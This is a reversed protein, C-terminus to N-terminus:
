PEHTAQAPKHDHRPPLPSPPCPAHDAIGLWAEVDPASASIPTALVRLVAHYSDIWARLMQTTPRDAVQRRLLAHDIAQEILGIQARLYLVCRQRVADSVAALAMVAPVVAIAAYGGGARALAADTAPWDTGLQALVAKGWIRLDMAAASRWEGIASVYDPDAVRAGELLKKHHASPLTAICGVERWVSDAMREALVNQQRAHTALPDLPVARCQAPKGRAHLSCLGDRELAPCRSAGPYDYGQPLIALHTAGGPGVVRFAVADLVAAREPDGAAALRILALSGIFVDQYRFM